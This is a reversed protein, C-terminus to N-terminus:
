TQQQDLPIFIWMVIYPVLGVGFSLLLIVFIMRWAWSPITTCQGLGGCVGGFWYDTSSRTLRNLLDAQIPAPTAAPQVDLVRAKAATFEAETIAGSARLSELKQLEDAIGM